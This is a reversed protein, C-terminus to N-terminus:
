RVAQIKEKQEATLTFDAALNVEGLITITPSLADRTGGGGGGLLGGIGGGPGGGQGFRGGAAGGRQGGGAGRQGGAGGAANGRPSTNGAAPKPDAPKEEDAAFSAVLTLLRRKM